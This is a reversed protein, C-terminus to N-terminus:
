DEPAERSLTLRVYVRTGRDPAADIEFQGGHAQVLHNVIILGLGINQPAQLRHDFRPPASLAQLEDPSIGPGEDSVCLVYTDDDQTAASVRVPTGPTSYKLANDVIEEVIKELSSRGIQVTADHVDLTLDAERHQEAAKEQAKEIIVQAPETIRNRGLVIVRAPDLRIIELQAYLLYNEIQRHLRQSTRLIAQAIQIIESPELTKADTMLKKAYGIVGSLPARLELPLALVLARRLNDIEQQYQERLVRQRELRTQIAALFESRSFPKTIYDDAGLEMGYRQHERDAKATLFIFPITNTVPDSSLELLVDYGNMRPMMIDCVILDPLHERVLKVGAVGDTAGVVDYGEFRLLNLVNELLPREDEIILITTM